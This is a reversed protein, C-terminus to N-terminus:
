EDIWKLIEDKRMFGQKKDEENDNFYILTPVSMIGYKKCIDKCDLANIKVIQIRGKIDNLDKEMMKCKVCTDTYFVLLFRKFNMENLNSIEIINM